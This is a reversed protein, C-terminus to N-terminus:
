VQHMSAKRFEGTLGLWLPVLKCAVVATGVGDEQSLPDGLCTPVWGWGQREEGEKGREASQSEKSSLGM